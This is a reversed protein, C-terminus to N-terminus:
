SHMMQLRHCRNRLDLVRDYYTDAGCNPHAHCLGALRRATDDCIKVMVAWAAAIRDLDQERKVCLTVMKYITLLETEVQRAEEHFPACLTNPILAVRTDFGTLMSSVLTELDAEALCNM